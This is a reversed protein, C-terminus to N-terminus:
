PGRSSLTEVEKWLREEVPIGLRQNEERIRLTQEGPYRVAGGERDPRAAHVFALLEEVVRSGGDGEPLKSLDFALFFQSLGYEDSRKALGATSDGGSLVAGVLDLLMSLGSGKWFGVPMARRSALIAAPDKTPRGEADFGGDVPLSEGRDRYAELKGYSFQSMAMDLVVHGARRPVAIVLPNNGLVCEASGWAPMNPITNTWALAACGANAAQWGYSGGRMWHNTNRLAVAGMGSSRSLEIARDMAFSANLNGPGLGGDWREWAGFAAELRPAADTKVFGKEIYSIFRPFRALGHTYVGDLSAEAFLRACREARGPEFGRQVLAREMASSM